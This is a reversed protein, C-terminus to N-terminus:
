AFGKPTTPVRPANGFTPLAAAAAPAASAAPLLGGGGTSLKRVARETLGGGMRACVSENMGKLTTAQAARGFDERAQNLWQSFAQAKRPDKHWRDAFNELPDTPNQIVYKSGDWVVFQDM